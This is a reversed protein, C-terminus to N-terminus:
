RWLSPLTIRRCMWPWPGRTPHCCWRAPSRSTNRRPTLGASATVTRVGRGCMALTPARWSTGGTRRTCAWKWCARAQCRSWWSRRATSTRPALLTAWRSSSLRRLTSTASTTSASAAKGSAWRACRPVSASRRKMRTTTRRPSRPSRPSRRRRRRRRTRMTTRKTMLTRTTRMATTTATTTTTKAALEVTRPWPLLSPRPTKKLCRPVMTRQRPTRRLPSMRYRLCLPVCTAPTSVCLKTAPCRCRRRSRSRSVLRLCTRAGFCCRAVRRSVWCTTTAARWTRSPSARCNRRWSHRPRRVRTVTASTTAAAVGRTCSAM